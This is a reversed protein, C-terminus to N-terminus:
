GISALELRGKWREKLVMKTASHEPLSLTSDKDILQFAEKRAENLIKVDRVINAIRFDPIGSQRTGLFEGPGRIAFDEEAIKFGDTTQEMIKLRRRADDSKKYQTLLMCQSQYEGRGVRGRLQHLQSLGFREAHEVVMLSANPVDIGVEVVTTSVLIDIKKSQFDSMISEKEGGDMRGHLLGVKFYPFVDNQLHEAMQTANMLDLKESEEILPYVIFVQKKNKVEQRIKQYVKERDMEHYLKTKVPLRGPPMQDIISIDLDGYVTLGLTRPIPTATMVLVDPNMGKKKLMARQMVGFRHQEDIIALGLKHFQVSEQIIAHTGIIIHVKGEEIEQYIDSRKSRKISSTLLVVKLRLQEAFPLITSYHQEALIETPAMFAAQYGNEIVVLSAILAVITKGSGVDGQLLRNMPYPKRLDDIIEVVVREQAATLGFPLISKQKLKNTYNDTINYSIGKELIVGRKRLALGLELFFFEDFILRRHASSRGQNLDEFDDSFEPFHVKKIAEQLIILHQRKCIYEPIGDIVVKSHEDTVRRMIRRMTKQYLGETESYIPIIQKFEWSKEEGPETVEIEPHHIEKQFLYRKVEGSLIVQQGKKFRKKMYRGNFQFWKAIIAGTGDGVAMEFIRKRGGKYSVVDLALITGKITEMANSKIESIKKIERRDEYKRPLFYLADDITHIGKRGLVESLRPGVGKIFQIPTSLQKVGGFPVRNSVPTNSDVMTEQMQSLITLTDEIRKKKLNPDWSGFQNFQILLNQFIVKVPQELPLTLAEEALKNIHSELGKITDLNGFQNKSAFILPRKIATIIEALRDM